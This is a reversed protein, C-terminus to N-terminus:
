IISSDYFQRQRSNDQTEKTFISAHPSYLGLPSSVKKRKETCPIYNIAEEASFRNNKSLEM